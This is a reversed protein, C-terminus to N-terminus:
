EFDPVHTSSTVCFGSRAISGISTAAAELADLVDLEELVEVPPRRRAAAGLPLAAFHAASM